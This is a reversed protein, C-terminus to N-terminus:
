PRNGGRKVPAICSYLFAIQKISSDPKMGSNLDGKEALKMALTIRKTGAKAIVQAGAPSQINKRVAYAKANVALKMRTFVRRKSKAKTKTKGRPNKKSKTIVTLTEFREMLLRNGDRLHITM